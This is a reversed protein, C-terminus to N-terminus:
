PHTRSVFIVALCGPAARPPPCSQARTQRLLRLGAGITAVCPVTFAWLATQFVTDVADDMQYMRMYMYDCRGSTTGKKDVTSAHGRTGRPEGPKVYLARCGIATAKKLIYELCVRFM